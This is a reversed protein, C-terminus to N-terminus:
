SLLYRQPWSAWDQYLRNLLLFIYFLFKLFLHTLFTYFELCLSHHLCLDLYSLATYTNTAKCTTWCLLLKWHLSSLIPVLDWPNQTDHLIYIICWPCAYKVTLLCVCTNWFPWDDQSNTSFKRFPHFSTSPSWLPSKQWLVSPFCHTTQALTAALM